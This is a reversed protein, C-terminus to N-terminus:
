KAINDIARQGAQRITESKAAAAIRQLDPLAQADKMKELAAIAILVYGPDTTDALIQRFLPGTTPAAVDALGGLIALRYEAPTETSDYFRVLTDLGDQQGLKALGYASNVRVGWDEDHTMAPRLVDKAADSGILAAAHSAMRRVVLDPDHKLTTDLAPLAAPDGISELLAVAIFREQTSTSNQLQDIVLRVGGKGSAKVEDALERMEKSGYAELGKQALGAFATKFDFAPQTSPPASEIKSPLIPPTKTEAPPEQVEVPEPAIRQTSPAATPVPARVPAVPRKVLFILSTVGVALGLGLIFGFMHSRNM